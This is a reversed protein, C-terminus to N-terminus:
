EGVDRSSRFAAPSRESAPRGPSQRAASLIKPACGSRSCWGAFDGVGDVDSHGEVYFDRNASVLQFNV